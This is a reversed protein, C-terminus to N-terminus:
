GLLGAEKMSLHGRASIIIHDLLKIGLTDGAAAIRSTVRKDESSPTLDGSPHNHAIIIATARDTIADCFIERPHIHAANVLGVTIVRAEIVEYAGNLTISVLHEQKKAVLYGLLPLVDQPETVKVGKPHIRRRAFELAASVLTAKAAGVGRVELLSTHLTDWSSADILPLLREALKAVPLEKTGSGLLITLLEVDELAKAGDKILRERPLISESPIQVEVGERVLDRTIRTSYSM